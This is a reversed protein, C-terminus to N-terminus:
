KININKFVVEYFNGFGHKIRGSEKFNYKMLYASIENFSTKNKYMDDEHHEIQIYDIQCNLKEGEFLGKLCSYEHGEVDIKIVDINNIKENFIYDAIRIVNVEQEESIIQNKEVGLVDSKKKLYSSNMNLEEFSSTEDLINKYFTLKGTINSAGVNNLVVKQNSKYKTKLKDFLDINPEFGHIIAQPCINQFFDISQGKNTGVDLIIPAQKNQLVATYFKKLRPYFFIRENVDIGWQIFKIRFSM